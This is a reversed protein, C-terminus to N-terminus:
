FIFFLSNFIDIIMWAQPVFNEKKKMGVGPSESIVVIGEEDAM